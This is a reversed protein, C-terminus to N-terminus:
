RVSVHPVEVPAMPHEEVPANAHIAPDEIVPHSIPGSISDGVKVNDYVNKTVPLPLTRHNLYIYYIFYPFVTPHTVKAAVQCQTNEKVSTCTVIKQGTVTTTPITKGCATLGLAVGVMATGALIATARNRLLKSRGQHKSQRPCRMLM